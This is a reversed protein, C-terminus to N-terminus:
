LQKVKEIINTTSVNDLGMPLKDSDLLVFEVDHQKCLERRFDIGDADPKVFYRDPKLLGFVRCLEALSGDGESLFAFDVAKFAHIVKLRLDEKIIPRGPAKRSLAIDNGVMVVLMDCRSNCEDLFAVHGAHPLDFSGSCFGVTLLERLLSHKGHRRINSVTVSQRLCILAAYDELIM